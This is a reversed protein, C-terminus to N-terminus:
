SNDQQGNEAINNAANQMQQILEELAKKAEEESSSRRMLRAMIVGAMKIGASEREEQPLSEDYFAKLPEEFVKTADTPAVYKYPPDIGALIIQGIIEQARYDIPDGAPENTDGDNSM